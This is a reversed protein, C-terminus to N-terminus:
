PTTDLPVPKRVIRADWREFYTTWNMATKAAYKIAPLSPCAVALTLLLLRPGTHGAYPTASAAIKSQPYRIQGATEIPMNTIAAKLGSDYKVAKPCVTPDREAARIPVKRRRRMPLNSLEMERNRSTNPRMRRPANLLAITLEVIPVKTSCALWM